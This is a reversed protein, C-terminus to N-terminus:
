WTRGISLKRTIDLIESNIKNQNEIVKITRVNFKELISIRKELEKIKEEM